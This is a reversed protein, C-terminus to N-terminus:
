TGVQQLPPPLEVCRDTVTIVSLICSIVGTRVATVTQSAVVYTSVGAGTLLSGNIMLPPMDAVPVLVTVYVTLGSYAPSSDKTVKVNSIEPLALLATAIQSNSANVPIQATWVSGSFSLSYSGGLLLSGGDQVTTVNVAVSFNAAM